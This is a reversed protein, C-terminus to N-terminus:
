GEGAWVLCAAPSKLKEASQARAAAAAAAKSFPGFARESCEFKSTGDPGVTGAHHTAQCSGETAEPLRFAHPGRGHPRSLVEADARIGGDIEECLQGANESPERDM